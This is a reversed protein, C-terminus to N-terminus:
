NKLNDLAFVLLGLKAGFPMKFDRGNKMTSGHVVMFSYSRRRDSITAIGNKYSDIALTVVQKAADRTLHFDGRGSYWPGVAGEIGVGDGSDLFMQAACCANRKTALETTVSLHLALTAFVRGLGTLSGLDAVRRILRLRQKFEM